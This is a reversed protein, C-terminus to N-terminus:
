FEALRFFATEAYNKASDTLLNFDSYSFGPRGIINLITENAFSIQNNQAQTLDIGAKNKADTKAQTIQKALTDYKLVGASDKALPDYIFLLM